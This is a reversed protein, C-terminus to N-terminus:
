PLRVAAPIFTHSTIQWSRGAHLDPVVKGRMRGCVLV